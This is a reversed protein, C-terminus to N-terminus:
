DKSREAKIGKLREKKEKGKAFFDGFSVLINLFKLNLTANRWIDNTATM